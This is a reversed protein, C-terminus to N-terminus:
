TRYTPSQYILMQEDMAYRYTTINYVLLGSLGIPVYPSTEYCILM